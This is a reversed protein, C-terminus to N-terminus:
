VIVRKIEDAADTFEDRMVGLLIELPVGEATAESIRECAERVRHRASSGRVMIRIQRALDTQDMAELRRALEPDLTPLGLDTLGERGTM